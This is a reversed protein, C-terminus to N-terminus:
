TALWAEYWALFGLGSDVDKRLARDFWAAQVSADDDSPRDHAGPGDLVMAAPRWVNDPAWSWVRGRDSGATCLFHYAMCGCDSIPLMGPRFYDRSRCGELDAPREFEM